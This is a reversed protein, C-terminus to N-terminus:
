LRESPTAETGLAGDDVLEIHDIWLPSMQHRKGDDRQVEIFGVTGPREPPLHRLFRRVKSEAPCVDGHPTEWQDTTFRYRMGPQLQLVDM